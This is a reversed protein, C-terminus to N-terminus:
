ILTEVVKIHDIDIYTESGITYTFKVEYSSGAVFAAVTTDVLGSLKVLTTGNDHPTATGSAQVSTGSSDFVEFNATAITVTGGDRETVQMWSPKIEDKDFRRM